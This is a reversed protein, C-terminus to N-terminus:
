RASTVIEIKSTLTRHIPCREAIEQLRRRQEDTLDGSLEIVREIRDLHAAQTSSAACDQLWARSHALQVRVRVLPWQKRRAYLSVTM